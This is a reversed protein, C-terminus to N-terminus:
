RVESSFDESAIMGRIQSKLSKSLHYNCYHLLTGFKKEIENAEFAKRVASNREIILIKPTGIAKVAEFFAELSWKYDSM